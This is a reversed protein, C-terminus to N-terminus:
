RAQKQGVAGGRGRQGLELAMGALHPGDREESALPSKGGLDLVEDFPLDYVFPLTIPERCCVGWPSPRWPPGGRKKMVGMGNGGDVSEKDNADGLIQSAYDACRTARM